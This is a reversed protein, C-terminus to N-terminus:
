KLFLFISVKMYWDFQDSIKQYGAYFGYITKWFLDKREESLGRFTDTAPITEDNFEKSTFFEGRDCDKLWTENIAVVKEPYNKPTTFVMCFVFGKKPLKKGAESEWQEYNKAQEFFLKFKQMNMPRFKRYDAFKFNNIKQVKTITSFDQKPTSFQWIIFM